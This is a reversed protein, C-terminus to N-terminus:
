SVKTKETKSIKMFKVLAKQEWKFKLHNTNMNKTNSIASCFDYFQPHMKLSHNCSTKKILTLINMSLRSSSDSIM